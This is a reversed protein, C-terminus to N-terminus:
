IAVAILVGIGTLIVSGVSIWIARRALKAASRTSLEAHALSIMQDCQSVSPVVSRALKERKEQLANVHKRLQQDDLDFIDTNILEHYEKGAALYQEPM